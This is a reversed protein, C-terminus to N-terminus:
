PNGDLASQLNWLAHDRNENHIAEDGDRVARLNNRALDAAAGHCYKKRTMRIASNWSNSTTKWSTTMSKTKRTCMEPAVLRLATTVAHQSRRKRAAAAAVVVDEGAAVHVPAVITVPTSVNQQRALIKTTKRTLRKRM